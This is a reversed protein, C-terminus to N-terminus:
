KESFEARLEECHVSLWRWYGDRKIGCLYLRWNAAQVATIASSSVHEVTPYTGGSGCWQLDGNKVKLIPTCFIIYFALRQHQWRRGIGPKRLASFWTVNYVFLPKLIDYLYNPFSMCHLGILNVVTGTM